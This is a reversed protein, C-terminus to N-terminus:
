AGKTEAADDKAFLYDLSCKPFFARKIKFIESVTFDVEGNIKKRVSKESLGLAAQMDRVSVNYRAMEAKLNRM